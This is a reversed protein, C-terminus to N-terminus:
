LVAVMSLRSNRLYVRGLRHQGWQRPHEEGNTFDEKCLGLCVDGEKSLRDKEMGKTVWCSFMSIASCLM